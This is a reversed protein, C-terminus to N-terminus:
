FVRHSGRVVGRQQGLWRQCFRRDPSSKEVFGPGITAIDAAAQITLAAAMSNQGPTVVATEMVPEGDKTWTELQQRRAAESGKDTTPEGDLRYTLLQRPYLSWSMTILVSACM